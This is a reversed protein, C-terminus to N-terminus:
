AMNAGALHYNCKGFVEGLLRLWPPSDYFRFTGSCGATDPSSLLSVIRTLWDAPVRTDADTCAIIDGTAASFGARLAHVYGKIKEDIVKVGLSEAIYATSDTSANNIVTIEYRGKYDQALLSLICDRLLDEENFAPVIITIFPLDTM